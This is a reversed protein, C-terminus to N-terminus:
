VNVDKKITPEPEDYVDIAGLSEVDTKGCGEMWSVADGLAFKIQDIHVFDQMDIAVLFGYTRTPGKDRELM